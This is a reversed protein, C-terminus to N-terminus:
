KQNRRKLLIISAIIAIVLFAFEFGLIGGNGKKNREEKINGELSGSYSDPKGSLWIRVSRM